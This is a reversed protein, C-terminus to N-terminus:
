EKELIFDQQMTFTGLPSSPLSIAKSAGKYGEAAVKIKYKMNAKLTIFYMGDANTTMNSVKAGASDTISVHAEPIFDGKSNSVKGRLISYGKPKAGANGSSLVSYNSLDVIYIDRKGEGGKRNSSLYGTRADASITFGKEDDVTNIPYGLNVPTTWKGSDNMSTKFIDYGGMSTHGDSSFFLTRGDPAMFPAGEDYGSNVVPGLNEAQTWDTKSIRDAKYLDARGYGGPRESTFYLTNGDPSLCAGDEYYSSNISKGLAVPTGWKGKASKKSVYIDGGRSAGHVNNKYLFIYNGDPSISTCSTHTYPENVDGEIPYSPGWTNKASDWKCIYVNDFIMSPDESVHMNGVLLPRSSTFILSTGDATVSPSKDDFQSNIMDGANKVTVNLPHAELQKALLCEAIYHDIDSNKLKEPSKIYKRKYANFEFLANDVQNDQLYVLGFTLHLEENANSDLSEAREFYNIAQEPQELAYYCQGLHYLISGDNPKATNAETYLKLAKNIDGALFAQRANFTKVDVGAGDIVSTKPTQSQCFLSSSVFVLGIVVNIKKM